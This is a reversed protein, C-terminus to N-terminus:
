RPKANEIAELISEYIEAMLKHRESAQLNGADAESKAMLLEHAVREAVANNYSDIMTKIINEAKEKSSKGAEDIQKQVDHIFKEYAEHSIM